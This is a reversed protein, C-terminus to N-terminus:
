QQCFIKQVMMVISIKYPIHQAAPLRYPQRSKAYLLYDSLLPSM